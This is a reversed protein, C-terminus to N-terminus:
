LDIMKILSASKFLSNILILKRTVQWTFIDCFDKSGKPGMYSTLIQFIVSCFDTKVTIIFIEM